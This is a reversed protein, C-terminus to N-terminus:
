GKQNKVLYNGLALYDLNGRLFADLANQPSEVIPEEHMNFSTNILVGGGTLNKYYKLIKYTSPSYKEYVIQPRATGDIHVVAPYKNKCKETTDCTITMFQAPHYQGNMMFYEDADEDLVIPAFPMFEYRKLRHNLWKNITPDSAHCLISRHGLARPGYEMRGEFRAVVNGEFLLVAIKSEINEFCSYELSSKKLSEVIETDPIERGLYVQNLSYPNQGKSKNHYYLLAAGSALGGDGMHPHIFIQNIQPINSIRQNLLVNAFIGGALAVDIDDYQYTSIIDAIYATVLNELHKQIAASIDERTFERLKEELEPKQFFYYKGNNEFIKKKKNYTILDEFVRICHSYNGRAALGTVKGQQGAKFGLIFTVLTYYYGISHYFPISHLLTMKGDKCYFVRSCYGDGSADISVTLCENFGSTYYASAAHCYHHDFYEIRAPSLGADLITRFNDKKRENQFLSLIVQSGKVGIQSGIFHRTLNYQSLFGAVQQLASPKVPVENEIDEKVYILGACAVGGIDNILGNELIYQLAYKLSIYPFGTQLKIRTYREENSSFIIKGDQIVSVGVDTKDSIGIVIM